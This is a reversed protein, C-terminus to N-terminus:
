YFCQAFCDIGELSHELLNLCVCTLIQPAPMVSSTRTFYLVHVVTGGFLACAGCYRWLAVSRKNQLGIRSLSRQFVWVTLYTCCQEGICALKVVHGCQFQVDYFETLLLTQIYLLTRMM